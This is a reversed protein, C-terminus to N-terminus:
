CSVMEVPVCKLNKTIVQTSGNSNKNVLAITQLILMSIYIRSMPMAFPFSDECFPSYFLAAM